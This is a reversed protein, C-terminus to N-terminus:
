AKSPPQTPILPERRWKNKHIAPQGTVPKGAGSPTNMRLDVRLPKVVNKTSGTISKVEPTAMNPEGEKGLTDSIVMKSPKQFDVSYKEISVNKSWPKVQGKSVQISVGTM